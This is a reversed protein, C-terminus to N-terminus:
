RNLKKMLGRYLINRYKSDNEEDEYDLPLKKWWNKPSHTFIRWESNPKKDEELWDALKEKEEEEEIWDIQKPNRRM